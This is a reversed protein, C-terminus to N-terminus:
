QKNEAYCWRILAGPYAGDNATLLDEVSLKKFEFSITGDTAASAIMYGYIDTQAKQAPGAEAPLRYRVAGASLAPTRHQPPMPEMKGQVM